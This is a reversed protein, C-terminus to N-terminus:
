ETPKKQIIYCVKKWISDFESALLQIECGDVAPDNIIVWERGDIVTYGIVVLLHGNSTRNPYGSGALQGQRIAISCIVPTGQSVAYKLADMDYYDVFANYGLEGARAVNFSWNGFIDDRNDYVAWANDAPEYETTGLSMLVMTLSTPSCIRGGIEPVVGQLRQPVNLKVEEMPLPATLAGEAKQPALTVNYLVPSKETTRQLRVIVRVTGSCTENLTLVDTSVKGDANQTGASASVGSKSSWVGWSFPRTYSGDAKKAQLQIEVTGDHTQANWSCVLKTFSGGLDIDESVFSGETKGDAIRMGGAEYVVSDFEGRFANAYVTTTKHNLKITPAFHDAAEPPTELSTYLAYGNLTEAPQATEPAETTIETSATTEPADTAPETAAEAESTEPAAETSAVTEPMETAPETTAATESTEPAAETSAVTESMETSPETTTASAATDTPTGAGGGNCSFLCACLLLLLLISTKKM